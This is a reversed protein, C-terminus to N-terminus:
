SIKVSDWDIEEEPEDIAVDVSNPDKKPLLLLIVIAHVLSGAITALFFAWPKTATFMAIMGSAPIHSDAGM